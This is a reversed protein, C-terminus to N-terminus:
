SSPSSFFEVGIFQSLIYIIVGAFLIVGILAYASSFLKQNTTKMTAVTGLGSIYFAANHVCDIWDLHVIYRFGLIGVLLVAVLIALMWLLLSLHKM